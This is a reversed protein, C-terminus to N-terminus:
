KGDVEEISNLLLLQEKLLTKLNTHSQIHTSHQQNKINGNVRIINKTCSANRWKAIKILM